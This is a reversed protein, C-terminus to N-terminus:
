RAQCHTCSSSVLFSVSSSISLKRISQTHTDMPISPTDSTWHVRRAMLDEQMIELLSGLAKDFFFPGIVLLTLATKQSYYERFKALAPGTTSTGIVSCTQNTCYTPSDVFHYRPATLGKTKSTTSRTHKALFFGPAIVKGDTSQSNKSVVQKIM